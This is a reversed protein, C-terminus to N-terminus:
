RWDEEADETLWEQVRALQAYDDYRYTQVFAAGARRKVEYPTSPDEFHRVLRQLDALAKAALAPAPGTSAPREEGGEQRGSARIYVIDDVTRAGLDAFGGAEAIARRWLCSPPPSIPSM